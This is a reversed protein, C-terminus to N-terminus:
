AAGGKAAREAWQRRMARLHQGASRNISAILRVMAAECLRDISETSPSSSTGQNM